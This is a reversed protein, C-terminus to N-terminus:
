YAIHNRKFAIIVIAYLGFDQVPEEVGVVLLGTAVAVVGVALLGLFLDPVGALHTVSFDVEEDAACLGVGRHDVRQESRALADNGCVHCVDVHVLSTGHLSESVLYEGQGRGVRLERSLLYNVIHLAEKGIGAMLM